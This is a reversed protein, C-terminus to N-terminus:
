REALRALLAIAEIRRPDDAALRSGFISVAETLEAQALQAEGKGALRQNASAVLSEGLGAAGARHKRDLLVAQDLVLRAEVFAAPTALDTLAIGLRRDTVAIDRHDETGFLEVELARVRRLVAIAEDLKKERRLTEGLIRLPLRVQYSKAGATAEIRTVAERVAAEAEVLRGQKMRLEALLAVTRWLEPSQEGALERFLPLAELYAVAADVYRRQEALVTGLTRLAFARDMSPASWIGLAERLAAEAEAYRTAGNLPIAYSFLAEAVGPHRPGLIERQMQIAQRFLPDAEDPRSLPGALLSALYLKASATRDDRAGVTREFGALSQRYIPEAELFRSADDLSKALEFQAVLTDVHDPGLEARYVEAAHRQLELSRDPDEEIVSGSLDNEITAAALSETGFRERLTVWAPELLERAERPRGEALRISGLIARAKAIRVEDKPLRRERTQLAREALASARGFLGLSEHIAALAEDLDAQLAPDSALEAEVRATGQELVERASLERGQAVTPDSQRFIEVLFQKVREARRANDAARRAQWATAALGGVLSLLLLAAAAVGVRHRKVFKGLRYGVTDPRAAIPRGDLYRHLDDQLAAATPYRREPERALAKLVITDLDGALQRAHLRPRLDSDASAATTRLAASPREVTEHELEEVLALVSTSSRRHPLKGTLLEYLVVGIAYVDTATTVVEGRIQEPASYAPTLARSDLETAQAAGDDSALLKAIGFDLLKVVGDEDVLINSPKLDRHVILNRHAFEVASCVELVARLLQELTLARDRAWASIPQGDVWEMVFYPRGDATSGADLLRAIGPHTLRGLIRRELAFRRLLADTELGRKLLKLAVRQEFTGDAREANWVEGMGGAGLQSVLRWAGLREGPELGGTALSELELAPDGSVLGLPGEALAGSETADVALMEILEAAFDPEEKALRDLEERREALPLDCLEEFVRSLRQWREPNM